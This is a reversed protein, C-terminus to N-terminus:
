LVLFVDLSIAAYPIPPLLAATADRLNLPRKSINKALRPLTTHMAFPPYTDWYPVM